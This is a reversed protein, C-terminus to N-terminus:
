HGGVTGLRRKRAAEARDAAARPDGKAYLRYRAEALRVIEHDHDFYFRTDWAYPIPADIPLAAGATGRADLERRFAATESITDLYRLPLAVRVASVTVLIGTLMSALLPAFRPGARGRVVLLAASIALATAPVGLWAPVGGLTTLRLQLPLLYARVAFPNFSTFDPRTWVLAGLLFGITVIPIVGPARRRLDDLWCGVFACLLPYAPVVYWSHHKEIILYFLLLAAVYVGIVQWPWRRSLESARGRLVGVIALPYVFSYPFAGFAIAATYFVANCLPGFGIEAGPGVLWKQTHAGSAQDGMRAMVELFPEWLYVLQALHWVAGLPLLWLATVIWSRTHGRTAPILAFCAVEALMPIAVFPAKLNLLVVLVLHHSIWSGGDRVRRVFTLAAATLGLALAPELEGTRASHLYVFQLTTLQVLGALLAARPTALAYVLRYTLLVSAVACLASLIRMSWPGPGFLSIVVARAWYQLPANMFTDYSRAEGYFDLELWNGSEVMQRAVAHYIEEDRNVLGYSGLGMLILPVALAVLLGPAALRRASSVRGDSV